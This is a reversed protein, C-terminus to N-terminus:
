RVRVLAKKVGLVDFAAPAFDDGIWESLEDHHEHDPDALAEKLEQYGFPGGCDEPPCAHAGDLFAPLKEAIGAQGRKLVGCWKM